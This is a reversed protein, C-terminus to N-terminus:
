PYLDPFEMDDLFAVDTTKIKQKIQGAIYEAINLKDCSNYKQIYANLLGTIKQDYIAHNPVGECRHFVEPANPCWNVIQYKTDGFRVSGTLMIGNWANNYNINAKYNDRELLNRVVNGPIIHHAEGGNASLNKSLTKSDLFQQSTELQYIVDLQSQDIKLNRILLKYEINSMRRPSLNAIIDRLKNVKNLLM